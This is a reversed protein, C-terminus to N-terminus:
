RFGVPGGAGASPHLRVKKATIREAIGGSMAFIEGDYYDSKYEAKEELAYYEAPTFRKRPQPPVM